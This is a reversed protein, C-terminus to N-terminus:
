NRKNLCQEIVCFVVRGKFSSMDPTKMLAVDPIRVVYFGISGGFSMDLGESSMGLGIAHTPKGAPSPFMLDAGFYLLFALM